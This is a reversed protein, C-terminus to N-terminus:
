LVLLLLLVSTVVEGYMYMLEILGAADHGYGIQLVLTNM